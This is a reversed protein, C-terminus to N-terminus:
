QMTALRAMEEAMLAEPFYKFNTIAGEYHYCTGSGSTAGINMEKRKESVKYAAETRTILVGDRYLCFEKGNYTVGLSYWRNPEVQLFRGTQPAISIVDNGNESFDMRFAKWSLYLRIGPKKGNHVRLIEYQRSRHLEAPTKVQMSITFPRCERIEDPLPITLLAHSKGTFTNNLYLAKGAPGDIWSMLQTNTLKVSKALAETDGENLPLSFKPSTLDAAFSTATLCIIAAIIISKM